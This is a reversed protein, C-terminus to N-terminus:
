ANRHIEIRVESCENKVVLRPPLNHHYVEHACVCVCVYVFVPPGFDKRQGGASGESWVCIQALLKLTPPPSPSLGKGRHREQATVAGEAMVLPSTVGYYGLVM